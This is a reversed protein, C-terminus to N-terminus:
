IKLLISFPWMWMIRPSINSHKRFHLAKEVAKVGNKAMILEVNPPTGVALNSLATLARLVVDQV